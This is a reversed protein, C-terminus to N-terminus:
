CCAWRMGSLRLYTVLQAEHVKALQEVAKVEVVVTRAVVIDLKYSGPVVLGKYELDLVVETQADLGRLRLEHLLCRRYATELLGPGLQEHVEIAAAIIRGTLEADVLEM